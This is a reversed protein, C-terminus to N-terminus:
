IFYSVIEVHEKVAAILAQDCNQGGVTVVTQIFEKYPEMVMTVSDNSVPLYDAPFPVTPYPLQIYNPYSYLMIYYVQVYKVICFLMYTYICPMNLMM